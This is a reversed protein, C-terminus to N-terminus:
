AKVRGLDDPATTLMDTLFCAVAGETDRGIWTPYSEDVYACQYAIMNRDTGPLRIGGPAHVGREITQHWQYSPLEDEEGRSMARAWERLPASKERVPDIQRQAVGFPEADVFCGWAYAGGNFGYFEGDELLRPDQGARLAMEWSVVPAESVRLLFGAEMCRERERDPDSLVIDHVEYRGPEITETFPIGDSFWTPQCAVVRGTPMDLVGRLRHTVIWPRDRELLVTVGERVLDDLYPNRYPVTTRGRRRELAWEGGDAAEAAFKEDTLKRGEIEGGSM